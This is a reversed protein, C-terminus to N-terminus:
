PSKNKNDAETKITISPCNDLVQDEKHKKNIPNFHSLEINDDFVDDGSDTFMRKTIANNDLSKIQNCILTMLTNYLDNDLYSCMRRDPKKTLNDDSGKTQIKLLPM